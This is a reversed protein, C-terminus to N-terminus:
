GFIEKTAEEVALKHMGKFCELPYSGNAGIDFVGEKRPLKGNNPCKCNKCYKGIVISENQFIDLAKKNKSKGDIRISYFVCIEAEM